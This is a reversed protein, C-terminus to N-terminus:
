HLRFRMPVAVRMAVARGNRRAPEFRWSAVARLAARDLLRYGSSVAITVDEARGDTGVRVDLLVCGEYGRLRARRPYAPPANERYLPVAEIVAADKAGAADGSDRRAKRNDGTEQAPAGSRSAPQPNTEARIAATNPARIAESPPPVPPPAEAPSTMADPTSPRPLPREYATGKKKAVAVPTASRHTGSPRNAPVPKPPATRLPQSPEPNREASPEPVPAREANPNPEKDSEPGSTARRGPTAAQPSDSLTVLVTRRGGQLAPEVPAPLPCCVLLAAHLAVSVVLAGGLAKM